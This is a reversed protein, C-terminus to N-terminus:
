RADSISPIRSLRREALPLAAAPDCGGPRHWLCVARGRQATEWCQLKAYGAPAGPLLLQRFV